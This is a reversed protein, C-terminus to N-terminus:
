QVKCRYWVESDDYHFVDALRMPGVSALTYDKHTDMLQDLLRAEADTFSVSDVLYSENITALKGRDDEKRYRIKCLFWSPM